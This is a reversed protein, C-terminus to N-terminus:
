YKKIQIHKFQKYLQFIFNYFGEHIIINNKIKEFIDM